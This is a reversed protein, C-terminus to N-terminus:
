WDRRHVVIWVCPNESKGKRKESSRDTACNKGYRTPMQVMVSQCSKFATDIKGMMEKQYDYLRIEKMDFKTEAVVDLTNEKRTKSNANTIDILILYWQDKGRREGSIYYVKHPQDRLIM